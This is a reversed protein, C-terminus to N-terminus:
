VVTGGIVVDYIHVYQYSAADPNSIHKEGLVKPAPSGLWVVDRYMSITSAHDHNICPQHMTSAHHICPPHMTSVHHIWPQHMTSTQLSRHPTWPAPCGSSPAIYVATYVRAIYVAMYVHSTYQWICTRHISGYVLAIYVAMYVAMIYLAIYVTIYLHSTYQWIHQSICHLM